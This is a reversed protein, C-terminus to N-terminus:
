IKTCSTTISEAVHSPRPVVSSGTINYGYVEIVNSGNMKIAQCKGTPGYIFSSCLAMAPPQWTGNALYPTTGTGVMVSGTTTSVTTNQAASACTAKAVPGPPTSPTTKELQLRERAFYKTQAAAPAAISAITTAALVAAITRTM